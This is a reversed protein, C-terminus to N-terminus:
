RTTGARTIAWSGPVPIAAGGEAKGADIASTGSDSGPGSDSAEAADGVGAESGMSSADSGSGPGSDGVAAGGTSSGCAAVALLLIAVCPSRRM